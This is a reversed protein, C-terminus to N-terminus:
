PNTHNRDENGARATTHEQKQQAAQRLAADILEELQRGAPLPANKRVGLEHLRIHVDTHEGLVAFVGLGCAIACGDIVWVERQSLKKLFHPKSAGLGALCSMEAIGRRDLERALQDALQGANSCGSCAFLLPPKPPNQM